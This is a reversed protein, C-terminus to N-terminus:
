ARTTRAGASSEELDTTAPVVFRDDLASALHATTRATEGGGIPGDDVIIVRLGRVLLEYATSLGAIGAGVICVDTTEQRVLAGEYTDVEVGMWVSRSAGSDNSIVKRM